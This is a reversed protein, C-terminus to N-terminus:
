CGRGSRHRIVYVRIYLIRLLRKLFGDMSVSLWTAAYITYCSFGYEAANKHMEDRHRANRAFNSYPSSLAEIHAKYITALTYVIDYASRTAAYWVLKVLVSHIRPRNLLTAAAVVTHRQHRNHHRFVIFTHHTNTHVRWALEKDLPPDHPHHADRYVHECWAEHKWVQAAGQVGSRGKFCSASMGRGGCM